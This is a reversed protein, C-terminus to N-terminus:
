SIAKSVHRNYSYLDLEMLCLCKEENERRGSEKHWFFIAVM